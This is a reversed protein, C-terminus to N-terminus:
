HECAAWAKEDCLLGTTRDGFFCRSLRGSQRTRQRHGSKILYSSVIVLVTRMRDMVPVHKIADAHKHLIDQRRHFHQFEDRSESSSSRAQVPVSLRILAEVFGDFTM